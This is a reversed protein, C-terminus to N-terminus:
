GVYRERVPEAQAAAVARRRILEAAKEDGMMARLDAAVALHQQALAPDELDGSRIRDVADEVFHDILEGVKEILKSRASSFGGYSASSRTEYTFSLLTSARQVAKDDPPANLKPANRFLRAIKVQQTPLAAQVAKEAARLREEVTAALAQKQKAIRGGWRGERSLVVGEEIESIQLTITEVRQAAELGAARGGELNLHTIAALNADIDDMLREAFDSLESQALYGETPKDMVASVIRLIMWPQALQGALMEFFRYGADEAVEVADRYALRAGAANAETTRTIWEGLKLTADRVVPGVDLCAALMEAGDPRAEDCLDAVAAYHENSRARLGAAALRGLADLAEPSTEGPHFDALVAAACAIEAPAEARLGRWLMALARSPFTLREVTKGDGCFMPAVSQLAANRLRRDQAEADVVRRVEELAADGGTGALADQLAGVIRDPSAQVLSRVVEIKHEALGPM